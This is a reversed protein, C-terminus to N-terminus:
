RFRITRPCRACDASPVIRAIRDAAFETVWVSGDPAAAIGFPNSRPTPLELEDIAGDRRIRGVRSTAQETFWLDGDRTRAIEAAQVFGSPIRVESVAGAPPAIRGIRDTALETFWLAGDDGSAIGNPLASVQPLLFETVIGDLSARAIRGAAVEVFWM